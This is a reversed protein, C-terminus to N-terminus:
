LRVAVALGEGTPLVTARWEPGRALAEHFAHMARAASSSTPGIPEVLEGWVFANDAVVLGGTRLNRAAWALYAPYGEKDADIFCLDFPAEVSLGELVQRADGVHVRVRDTVGARRFTATAVEAHRADVDITHLVGGATLGRAIATGSYGALTGIEVAKRAGCARTLVELHRADLPAVHIDPMDAAAAARASALAADEPAYLELVYRGLRPDGNGVAKSM